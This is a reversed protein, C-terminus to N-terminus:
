GTRASCVTLLLVVLLVLLLLMLVLLLVLVCRAAVVAPPAAVVVVKATVEAGSSSRLLVGGRGEGGGGLDEVAALAWNLEVSGAPLAAGLTAPIAAAGGAIRTSGPDDPQPFTAIELRALLDRIGTQGGRPPPWCWAAGMDIGHRDSNRLRGGLRGSAELLAFSRGAAALHEAVLLGALGGGVVAVEVEQVAAMAGAGARHAAASALALPALYLLQHWGKLM